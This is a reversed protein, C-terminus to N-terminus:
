KIYIVKYTSTTKNTVTQILYIGSSIQFGYEDLGDWHFQYIGAIFRNTTITKIKQGLINYIDIEYNGPQFVQLNINLRNNFPNPWAKLLISKEVITPESVENIKVITGYLQSDIIAGVLDEYYFEVNKYTVGLGASLVSIGWDMKDDGPQYDEAAFFSEYVRYDFGSDVIAKYLCSSDDYVVSLYWSGLKGNLDYQRSVGNLYSSNYNGVQNYADIYWEECYSGPISLYEVLFTIHWIGDADLSDKVITKNYYMGDNDLYQWIDGKHHPFFSEPPPAEQANLLIAAFLFIQKILMM